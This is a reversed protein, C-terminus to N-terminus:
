MYLFSNRSLWVTSQGDEQSLELVSHEIIGFGFVKSLM